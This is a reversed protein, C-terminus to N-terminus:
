IQRSHVPTEKTTKSDNTLFDHLTLKPYRSNKDPYFMIMNDDENVTVLYCFGINNLQKINSNEVSQVWNYKRLNGSTSFWQYKIIREFEGLSFKIVSSWISTCTYGCDEDKSGNYTKSDSTHNTHPCRFGIRKQTKERELREKEEKEQKIKDIDSICRLDGVIKYFNGDERKEYGLYIEPANKIELSSVQNLDEDLLIAQM